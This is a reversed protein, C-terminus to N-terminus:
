MRMLLWMGVGLSITIAEWKQNLKHNNRVTSFSMKNKNKRRLLM